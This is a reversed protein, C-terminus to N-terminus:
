LLSVQIHIGQGHGLPPGAKEKEQGATVSTMCRVLVYTDGNPSPQSFEGIESVSPGGRLLGCRHQSVDRTGRLM